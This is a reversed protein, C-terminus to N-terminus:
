QLRYDNTVPNLRYITFAARVPASQYQYVDPEPISGGLVSDHVTITIANYHPKLFDPLAVAEQAVVGSASGPLIWGPLRGKPPAMLGGDIVALPTYFRLPFEPDFSMVLEGPHAERKFFELVDTLRDDYPRGIGRVYELLPLRFHHTGRFFWATAVAPANSLIQVAILLVALARWPIYRFTWAAALLCAVPFIPLLYRLYFGPAFLITAFYSGLLFLLWREWCGAVESENVLRTRGAPFWRLLPLLLFYLPLFHFNFELLYDGVKGLQLEDRVARSQGWPHAYILWPLAAVVLIGAVAALRLLAPKGEKRLMWALFVLAPLNAVMIIYNSYFQVILAVAALWIGRRNRALLLYIGYILLIEGLVSIPYYRCQRAHLLFVESTGLLVVSALAVRHSRYIKFTVLALVLLSGWGILAFPARAAWTTPGFLKFSGAALYEQMWPSWIWVHNQNEDRQGHLLIYNTGDFTRPIGYRMVNRALVATEGEDGWLLHNDLHSFLLFGAFALMAVYSGVIFFRKVVKSDGMYVTLKNRGAGSNLHSIRL